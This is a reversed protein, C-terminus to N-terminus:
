RQTKTKPRSKRWIHQLTRLPVQLKEALAQKYHPGADRAKRIEAIDGPTLAGHVLGNRDAPTGCRLHYPNICRLNGGEGYVVLGAPVAGHLQQWMWKRATMQSDNECRIPIGQSNVAGLWEWCQNPAKPLKVRPKISLGKVNPM